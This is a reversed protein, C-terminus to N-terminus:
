LNEYFRDITQAYKKNVVPRKLKMTPGLEDGTISFDKPLITWKQIKQANSTASKNTADIGEQIAKMVNADPGSLVDHITNATSGISRCWEVCAPTLKDTPEGSEVDIDVKLTLLISLFKRKDGILM